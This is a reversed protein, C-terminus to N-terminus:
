FMFRRSYISQLIGLAMMTALFSTGGYTVLILPVGTIPLFGCMMGINVLVHVSLYVAVGASLLRGFQDKAVATVQFSFYILAYFLALLILLGVMGFEEGFTSFVSDTAAAPLWGGHVFDGERWGKGTIGGVAIATTSAKHHHHDPKLRNYQYERVIKTAYPRLDEHPAIGLFFLAIIALGIGMAWAGLRIIRPNLDGIYFMVLTIPMLVLATGLDPQKLIILFPIGAIAGAAFVTSWRHNTGRRELYWSMAIVVVLKALESPQANMGLFPIRYWRHVNQIAPAFFLGILSLLTIGYLVWAWERLKNYDFGAFFLYVCAGIAFWQLQSKVLPTMFPQEHPDSAAGISSSSLVLLSIGMLALIIPIIRFDCRSLYRYDWLSRM